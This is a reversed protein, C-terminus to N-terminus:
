EAVMAQPEGGFHADIRAFLSALRVPATAPAGTDVLYGIGNHKGNKLAVFAVLDRFRAVQGGPYRLPMDSSIDHPWVLSVFLDAGRADVEFVPEASDGLRCACLREAAARAEVEGNLVVALDRSMRGEVRVHRIGVRQLLAGPEVLRWYFVPREVPDQHLGTVVLLRADPLGRLLRSLIADYARYACLLPDRGSRLYWAPNRGPSAGSASSGLMYHHQLHAAANLFLSAFDPRHRRTLGLFVDALLEDLLIAREAHDRVARAARALMALLGVGGPAWRAVAEALALYAMAPARGTANENVLAGVAASLRHLAPDGTVPTRTWPDPVFFAPMAARNAANMPSVAGVRCGHTAELHEWIQTLPSAVIDGLRFIQHEAYSLGTHVTVWQIWPELQEHVAESITETVGNKALLEGFISLEGQSVYYRVFDINLENLAVLYLPQGSFSSRRWTM